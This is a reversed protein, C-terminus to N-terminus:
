FADIVTFDPGSPRAILLRCNNTGLDLAAYAEGTRYGCAMSSPKGHRLAPGSRGKSNARQTNAPTRQNAPKRSQRAPNHKHGIDNDAKAHNPKRGGKASGDRAQAGRKQGGRKSVSNKQQSSRKNRFDAVKGSRGSRRKGARKNDDPPLTDAM